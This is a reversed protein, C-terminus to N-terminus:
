GQVVGVRPVLSSWGSSDHKSARERGGHTANDPRASARWARAENRPWFGPSSRLTSLMVNQQHGGPRNTM